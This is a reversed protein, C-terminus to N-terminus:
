SYSQLIKKEKRIQCKRYRALKKSFDYPCGKHSDELQVPVGGRRSKTLEVLGTAVNVDNSGSPNEKKWFPM